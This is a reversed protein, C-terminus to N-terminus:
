EIEIDIIRCSLHYSFFYVALCITMIVIGTLNHYLADFYGKSTLSIYLMIGIPVVNMVNQEARKAAILLSIEEKVEIKEGILRVTNQIMASLNGGSRKATRFVLAFDQIDKVGSRQAFDYLLDELNRSNEMQGIIWRCERLLDAQEEYLFCIDQYASLFANEISYGAKLSNGFSLILEKFQLCLEQQRKKARKKAQDRLLFPVIGIGALAPLWSQYFLRAILLFLALCRLLLFVLEGRGFRYHGYETM